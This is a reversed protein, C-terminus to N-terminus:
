ELFKKKEFGIPQNNCLNLAPETLLERKRHIHVAVSKSRSFTFRLKAWNNIQNITQQFKREITNINHSAYYIAVDDVYISKSAENPVDALIGNRAVAFLTVGLVSGQPM